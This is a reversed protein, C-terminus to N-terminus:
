TPVYTVRATVEDGADLRQRKINSGTLRGHDEVNSQCEDNQISSALIRREDHGGASMQQPANASWAASERYVRDGGFYFNM